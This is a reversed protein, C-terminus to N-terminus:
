HCREAVAQRSAAMCWRRATAMGHPVGLPRGSARVGGRASRSMVCATHRSCTAEFSQKSEHHALRGVGEIQVVALAETRGLYTRGRVLSAAAPAAAAVVPAAVQEPLVQEPVAAREGEEIEQEPEPAPAQLM